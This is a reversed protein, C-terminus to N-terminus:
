SSGHAEDGAGGLAFDQIRPQMTKDYTSIFYIM